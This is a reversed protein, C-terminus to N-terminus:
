DKKIVRFRLDTRGPSQLVRIKELTIELAELHEFFRLGSGLLLPVFGIELEDVLGARLLQQAVNAGGVITVDKAGAAAKAQTVASELGDTVFIISLKDNQGKTPTSPPTHTLVFIPVQFEYDTFDSQAVDYSHRGMIVAGTGRISEQLFETNLLGAHDPYLPSLDGHRDAIFGDLSMTTGLMIKAM